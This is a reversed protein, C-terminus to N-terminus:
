GDLWALLDDLRDFDLLADGLAELRDLPLENIITQANIPLIGLKKTLLKSIISREGAILGKTTGIAEGQALGEALGEALIEQYIVSEKMLDSRMLRQIVTGNLKLGAMVSTVAILNSQQNRPLDEILTSVQRLIGAQDTTKGLVAYPWLGPSTLFMEAPEEWIRIVDFEHHLRGAQFSNKFVEASGTTRLYIVVQKMAKDPFKHYVRLRYDAMRFPMTLDPDTQFECHLVLTDSQLLIVSDARIPEISLETPQLKTLAIPEGLLWAAFDAPYQEIQFKAVSDFM